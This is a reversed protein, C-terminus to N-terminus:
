WTPDRRGIGGLVTLLSMAAVWQATRTAESSAVAAASSRRPVGSAPSATMTSCPPM